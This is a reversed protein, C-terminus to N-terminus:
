RSIKVPAWSVGGRSTPLGDTSFILFLFFLFCSWRDLVHFRHCRIREDPAHPRDDNEIEDATCNRQRNAGSRSGGPEAKGTGGWGRHGKCAPPVVRVVREGRVTAEFSAPTAPVQGAARTDD